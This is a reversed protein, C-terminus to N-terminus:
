LSSCRYCKVRSYDKSSRHGAVRAKARLATAEVADGVEEEKVQLRTKVVDLTVKPHSLIREKV